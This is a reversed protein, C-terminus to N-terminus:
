TKLEFYKKIVKEPEGIMLSRGNHILLIRDSLESLKEINHTAYLITKNNKKFSLFTEYSKERFNKDGVSLIEDVLLIDPNIQMAISFALRARMGASFHKIKLNQFKELEAFRIISDTKELIDSKTMGLLMGNMLINDFANLEGQFGVGIQLLPSLTGFVKVHGSDPAYVGAIIRLLTTKGGGNLGIIGITEGKKVTFSIEKLADLTELQHSQNKIFKSIGKQNNIKFTKSVNSVEIAIDDM